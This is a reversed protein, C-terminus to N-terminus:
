VKEAIYIKITRSETHFVPSHPFFLVFILIKLYLESFIHTVHLYARHKDTSILSWKYYTNLVDILKMWM